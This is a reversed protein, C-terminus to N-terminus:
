TKKKGSVDKCAVERRIRKLLNRYFRKERRGVSFPDGFQPMYYARKIRLEKVAKRFCGYSGANIVYYVAERKRYREVLEEAWQMEWEKAGIVAIICDAGEPEERCEKRVAGYDMVCVSYEYGEECVAQGYRPVLRVSGSYYIGQKECVQERYACIAQVAGSDNKEEYLSGDGRDSCAKCLGISFHTAGTRPQSAVVAIKLSKELRRKWRGTISQIDKLLGDATMYRNDANLELCRQIIRSWERHYGPISGPEGSYGAVNGTMTWYLVAGIAYIDSREDINGGKLQEPSAFGATGTVNGSIQKGRLYVASGLDLLKIGERSIIIHEPKLDLYLIPYPKREHLWKIAECLDVALRIIEEQSITKKIDKLNRLSQGSIYEQILYWCLEDEECDYLVPFYFHNLGSLLEAEKEFAERDFKEKSICKVACLHHLQKHEALYVECSLGEGLKRLLTYKRRIAEVYVAERGICNDSMENVIM